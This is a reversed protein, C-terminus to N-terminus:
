RILSCGGTGGEASAPPSLTANKAELESDPTATTAPLITPQPANQNIQLESDPAQQAVIFQMSATAGKFEMCAGSAAITKCTGDDAYLVKEVGTVDKCTGCTPLPLSNAYLVTYAGANTAAENPDTNTLTNMLQVNAAQGVPIKADPPFLTAVKGSVTNNYAAQDKAQFVIGYGDTTIKSTSISTHQGQLIIGNGFKLAIKNNRIINNTGTVLIGNAQAMVLTFMNIELPTTIEVNNMFSFNGELCITNVQIPSQTKFYNKAIIKVNELVGQDGSFTMICAPVDPKYKAVDFFATLTPTQNDTPIGVLHVRAPITIPATLEFSKTIEIYCYKEYAPNPDTCKDPTITGDGIKEMYLKFEAENSVQLAASAAHQVGVLILITIIVTIFTHKIM